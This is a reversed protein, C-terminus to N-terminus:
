HGIVESLLCRTVARSGPTLFVLWAAVPRACDGGATHWIVAWPQWLGAWSPESSAWTRVSTMLRPEMLLSHSCLRPERTQSDFGHSGDRHLGPLQPRDLPHSGPKWVWLGAPETLGQRVEAETFSCSSGPVVTFGEPQLEVPRDRGAGLSLNWPDGETTILRLRPKRPQCNRPTQM